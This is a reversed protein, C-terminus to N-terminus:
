LTPKIESKAKQANMYKALAIDYSPDRLILASREEILRPTAKRAKDFSMGLKVGGLDFALADISRLSDAYL